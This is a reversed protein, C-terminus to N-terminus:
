LTFGISAAATRRASSSVPGSRRRRPGGSRPRCRAVGDEVREGAGPRHVAADDLERDGVHRARARACCIRAHAPISAADIAAATRSPSAPRQADAVSGRRRRRGPPAARRRVRVRHDGGAAGAQQVPLGPGAPLRAGEPVRVRGGREIGEALTTMELGRALELFATVISASQPDPEVDSVFSRDIKLVSVPMERLRSLSSYGTGFDDIAIQLGGSHLQWLIEQARDPDMMASTETIEVM